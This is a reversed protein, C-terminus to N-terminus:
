KINKHNYETTLSILNGLELNSKSCDTRHITGFDGRKGQLGRLKWFEM